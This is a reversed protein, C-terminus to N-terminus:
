LFDPALPPFLGFEFFLSEDDLLSDPDLLSEEELLSDDDLESEDDEDDEDGAALLVGDLLVVDVDEEVEESDFFYHAVNDEVPVSSQNDLLVIERIRVLHLQQGPRAVKHM